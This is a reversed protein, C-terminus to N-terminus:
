LRFRGTRNKVKSLYGAKKLKALGEEAFKKGIDERYFMRPVYVAKVSEVADLRADDITKGIGVAYCVYGNTGAIYLQDFTGDISAVEDFHLKDDETVRTMNKIHIKTGLLAKGITKDRNPFPPTVISIVVGFDKSYLVEPKNGTAVAYLFDGWSSKYMTKQLHIIPAGLRATVELPFAGNENVICSVCFVGRFDSERLFEEFKALTDLYLKETEDDDYWALTGMEDVVPGIDGPFLHTHEVNYEIPGVWDKGNFTRAIGIETGFIRKQLTIQENKNIKFREYNELVAIVDSGDTEDGVFAYPKLWHGNSYKVVWADPNNKIHRIAQSVKNFSAMEVTQLGVKKFVEYGFERDTEAREALGGGGFVNYGEKRLEIQEEGFGVDDFVILGDKGVWDLQERWSDVKDVLNKYCDKTEDELVFLKVENGEEKLRHVFDGTLLIDSIFLIRM